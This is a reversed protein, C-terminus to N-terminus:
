PQTSSMAQLATVSAELAKIQDNDFRFMHVTYLYLANVISRVWVYFRCIVGPTEDNIFPPNTDLAAVFKIEHGLALDKPPSSM